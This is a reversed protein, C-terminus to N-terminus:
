VDIPGERLVLREQRISRDEEQPGEQGKVIEQEKRRGHHRHARSLHSVPTNPPPSTTDSAIM